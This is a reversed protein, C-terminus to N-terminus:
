GGSFYGTGKEQGKETGKGRRLAEVATLLMWVMTLAITTKELVPLGTTTEEGRALQRAFVAITAGLCLLTATAASRILRVPPVTTWVGLTAGFAAILGPVATVLVFVGHVLAGVQYSPFLIIVVGGLGSLGGCVRVVQGLKKRDEFLSGTTLFFPALALVFAMLGLDACRAGAVNSEGNLAVPRTLDCLFNRVQSHGHAQREEWTGGPYSSLAIATLGVFTLLPPVVSLALMRRLRLSAPMGPAAYRGQGESPLAAARGSAVLAGQGGTGQPM